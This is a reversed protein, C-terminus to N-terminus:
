INICSYLYLLLVTHLIPNYELVPFVLSYVKMLSTFVLSLNLRWNFDILVVWSTFFAIVLSMYVGLM